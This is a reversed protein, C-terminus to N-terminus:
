QQIDPNGLHNMVVYQAAHAVHEVDAVVLNDFDDLKTAQFNGLFIYQGVQFFVFFFTKYTARVVHHRVEQIAQHDELAALVFATRWHRDLQRHGVVDNQFFQTHGEFQLFVVHVGDELSRAERHGLGLQAGQEALEAM